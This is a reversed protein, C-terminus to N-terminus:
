NLYKYVYMYKYVYEHAYVKMRVGLFCVNTRSLMTEFELRRVQRKERRIRKSIMDVVRFKTSIPYYKM